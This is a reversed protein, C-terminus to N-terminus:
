KKIIYVAGSDESSNDASARGDTNDITTANSDEKVAGAVILDGSASLGCSFCDEEDSNSSKLYADQIWNGSGDKKFVFVAGSKESSNDASASGDTNDITKANSGDASGVVIMKDGISVSYGFFNTNKSPKLYADQIWNGSGDKTFVYAAGSDTDASSDDDSASGDTNDITTSDSDEAPAGVVILDDSIAVSYGFLDDKDSNSAKLYADQVWDSGDQKFVYVAGNYSGSVDASASGDANEVATSNSNEEPVGVVILDGSIAVAHGFGMEAQGSSNSAKLYADQVWDSGDLKFVYVAGYGDNTLESSNDASASGDTNDIITANSDEGVSGVVILDGSIAVSTGFDDYGDHNSAKLFADQVWDSGDLKFVYAAGAQSSHNNTPASGDANDITNGDSQEYTAGVVIRNGSIAVAEGFRDGGGGNSAKLYADQVWDSGDKKLVYVAGPWYSSSSDTSASGDDNDINSSNSREKYAGVAILNDSVAVSGGYNIGDVNNSAKLYADQTWTSDPITVTVVYDQTSGDEASVAYTAPTLFSNATSGSTQVTDDVSVSNGTTTFTAVLATVVTGSPVSVAITLNAEDITGSVDASLESNAAATFSFGTIEKSNKKIITVTVVYDQTSGDEALVAYTVPTLFDNATSGSIQVTDNVSVSDGTTTFTAVLATVATDSPVSVAITLNAEDITGSVDASLESNAAATFSFGTIENSDSTADSDSNGSGSDQCGASMILVIGLLFILHKMQTGRHIKHKFISQKEIAAIGLDSDVEDRSSNKGKDIEASKNLITGKNSVHSTCCRTVGDLFNIPSYIFNGTLDTFILM